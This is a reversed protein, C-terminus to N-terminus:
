NKSFFFQALHESNKTKWDNWEIERMVIKLLVLINVRITPTSQVQVRWVAIEGHFFSDLRSNGFKKVKGLENYVNLFYNWLKKRNDLLHKCLWGGGVWAVNLTLWFAFISIAFLLNKRYVKKENTTPLTFNFM